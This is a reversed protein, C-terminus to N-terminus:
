ANRLYGREAKRGGFAGSGTGTHLIRAPGDAGVGTEIADACQGGAGTHAGIAQRTGMTTVLRGATDCPRGTGRSVFNKKAEVWSGREFSKRTFGDRPYESFKSVIASGTGSNYAFLRV